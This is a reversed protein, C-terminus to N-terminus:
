SWQRQNQPSLYHPLPTLLPIALTFKFLPTFTDIHSHSCFNHAHIPIHQKQAPRSPSPLTPHILPQFLSDTHSLPPTHSLTCESAGCTNNLFLCLAERSRPRHAHAFECVHLIHAKLFCTLRRLHPAPLPFHPLLLSGQRTMQRPRGGKYQQTTM